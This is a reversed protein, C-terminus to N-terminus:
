QERQFQSKKDDDMMVDFIAEIFAEFIIELRKGIGPM